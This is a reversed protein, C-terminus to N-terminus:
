NNFLKNKRIYKIVNDPVLYKISKKNQVSKRVDTSSVPLTFISVVKVFPYKIHYGPRTVAVLRCLKMIKDLDKWTHLGSFSDSGLIFYFKAKNKYIKHLKELTDVTYSKGGRKIEVDSVKFCPNDKVALKVMNLRHRTSLIKINKKHPPLYCPIFIISHLGLKEKVGEALLLHGNHIPNFTGGLIGIKKIM